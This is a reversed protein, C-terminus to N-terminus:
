LGGIAALVADVGARAADLTTTDIVWTARRRKDADPMQRALILALDADTMEGRALVRDRQIAASTSVVAVGDCAQDAGTEFLLPIDLVVVPVGSHRAVFAARDAATLPHILANLRDLVGPEDAVIARLAARDVRDGDMAQPFAAAIAMAGPQGPAYLARVCADADWVPVGRDAFMAATTTKGMGISGTLGLVYTV